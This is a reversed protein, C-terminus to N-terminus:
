PTPPTVFSYKDVTVFTCHASADFSVRLRSASSISQVAQAVAAGSWTCSVTRGSADSAGCQGSPEGGPFTTMQCGVWEKGDPSSRADGLAGVFHGAGTSDVFISVQNVLKLGALASGGGLLALAISVRVLTRM